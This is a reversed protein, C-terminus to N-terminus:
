NDGQKDKKNGTDADNEPMVQKLIHSSLMFQVGLIVIFYVVSLLLTTTKPADEGLQQIADNKTISDTLNNLLDDIFPGDFEQALMAVTQSAQLVPDFKGDLVYRDVILDTYSSDHWTDTVLRQITTLTGTQAMMNRSVTEVMYGMTQGHMFETLNSHLQTLSNPATVVGRRLYKARIADTMTRWTNPDSAVMVLQMAARSVNKLDQNREFADPLHQLVQSKTSASALDALIGDFLKVGTLLTSAWLNALMAWKLGPKIAPKVTSAAVDIITKQVIDMAYDQISTVVPNAFPVYSKLVWGLVSVMSATIGAPSTALKGVQGAFSTGMRKVLESLLYYIDTYKGVTAYYDRNAQLLPYEMSQHDGVTLPRALDTHDTLDTNSASQVWQLNPLTTRWDVAHPRLDLKFQLGLDIALIVMTMGLFTAITPAALFHLM